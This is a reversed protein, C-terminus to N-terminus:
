DDLYIWIGKTYRWASRQTGEEARLRFYLKAYNNPHYEQATSQYPVRPINGSNISWMNYCLTGQWVREPYHSFYRWSSSENGYSSGAFGFEVRYDIRTKANPNINMWNMVRSNGDVLNHSTQVSDEPTDFLPYHFFPVPYLSSNAINTSRVEIQDIAIDGRLGGAATARFRIKSNGFYRQLDLTVHTWASNKSPHQQGSLSWAKHWQGQYWVEVSLTGTDVGHMHYYFSLEADTVNVVDSELIATDGVDFACCSSTEFYRYYTTGAAGGVPGTNLSPTQGSNLVWEFEGANEWVPQSEFDEIMPLTQPNQLPRVYDKTLALDSILLGTEDNDSYSRSFHLGIHTINKIDVFDFMSLPVRVHNLVLKAKIDRPKDIAETLTNSLMRQRNGKIDIMEVYFDSGLYDANTVNAGIRFSLFDYESFDRYDDPIHNEWIGSNGIWKVNLQALGPHTPNFVSSDNHPERWSDNTPLGLCSTEDSAGGCVDYHSLGDGTALGDLTNTLTARETDLRNIDLRESDPAHYSYRININPQNTIPLDGKLYDALAHEGELYHRFFSTIIARGVLRQQAPTLKEAANKGCENENDAWVATSDDLTGAPFEGPTWKTNFFNHNAGKLLFAHKPTTQPSERADDFYHVGQLNYVDGDCYPLIVGFPTDDVKARKFNTPAIALVAKINFPTQKGKNYNIHEVVGEGGRSHGITGIRSFDIKQNFQDGLVSNPNENIDRLLNLHHDILEARARMGFFYSQNDYASIGNASISVVIFGYSALHSTMYKHGKYSPIVNANSCPWIGLITGFSYCPSHRGHLLVILPFPGESLAEPYTVEAQVEVPRSFDTPQFATDGLNYYSTRVSYPGEADPDLAAYVCEGWFSSLVLIFCLLSAHTKKM